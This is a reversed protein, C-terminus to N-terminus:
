EILLRGASVMLAGILFQRLRKTPVRQSILVGLPAAALGAAVMLTMGYASIADAQPGLAQGFFILSCLYGLVSLLGVAFGTMNATAIADQFRAGAGYVFYAITYTGGGVGILTSLGGIVGGFSADRTRNRAVERRVDSVPWLMACALCLQLVAVMQATVLGRQGSALLAIVPTVTMAGILYWKARKFLERRQDVSRMSWHKSAAGFSNFVVSFWSVVIATHLVQPGYIWTLAPVIVIGGALGVLGAILGSAIGVLALVLLDM